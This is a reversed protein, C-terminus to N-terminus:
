SEGNIQELIATSMLITNWAHILRVTINKLYIDHFQVKIVQTNRGMAYVSRDLEATSNTDRVRTVFGVNYHSLVKWPAFEIVITGDSTSYLLM